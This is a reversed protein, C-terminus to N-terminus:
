KEEKASITEKQRLIREPQWRDCRYSRQVSQKQDMFYEMVPIRLCMQITGSGRIQMATKSVSGSEVKAMWLNQELQKRWAADSPMDSQEKALCIVERKINAYLLAKDHEYYLFYMFAFCIGLIIPVIFAAEVTYSASVWGRKGYRQKEGGKQKYRM